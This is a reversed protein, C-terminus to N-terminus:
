KIMFNIYVCVPMNNTGKVKKTADVESKEVVNRITGKVAELWVDPWQEAWLAKPTLVDYEILDQALLNGATDMLISKTGSTGIDTGILYNM